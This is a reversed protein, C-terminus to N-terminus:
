GEPLRKETERMIQSATADDSGKVHV